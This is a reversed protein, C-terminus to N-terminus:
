LSRQGSLKLTWKQQFEEETLGCSEEKDDLSNIIGLLNHKRRKIDGLVERNWTKLKEKIYLLKKAVNYSAFGQV